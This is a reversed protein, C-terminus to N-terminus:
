AALSNQITAIEEDLMKQFDPTKEKLFNIIQLISTDQSIMENCTKADEESLLPIAKIALNQGLISGIENLFEKQQADPLHALNFHKSLTTLTTDM